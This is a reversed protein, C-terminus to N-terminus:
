RGTGALWRLAETPPLVVMVKTLSYGSTSCPAGRCYGVLRLPPLPLSREPKWPTNIRRHPCSIASSKRPFIM